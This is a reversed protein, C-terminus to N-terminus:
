VVAPAVDDTRLEDLWADADRAWKVPVRLRGRRDAWTWLHPVMLCLAAPGYRTWHGARAARLYDRAAARQDGTRLHLRALYRYWIAWDIAIGRRAREDAYKVEIVELEEETRRVNHAM